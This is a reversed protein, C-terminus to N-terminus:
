NNTQKEANRRERREERSKRYQENKQSELFSNYWSLTKCIDYPSYPQYLRVYGDKDFDIRGAEVMMQFTRAENTGDYGDNKFRKEPDDVNRGQAFMNITSLVNPSLLEMYAIAHENGVHAKYTYNETYFTLNSKRLIDFEEYNYIRRISPCLYKWRDVFDLLSGQNQIQKKEYAYQETIHPRDLDITLGSPFTHIITM